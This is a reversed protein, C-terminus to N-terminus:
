YTHLSIRYIVKQLQNHSMDRVYDGIMLDRVDM